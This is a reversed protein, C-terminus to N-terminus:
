MNDVSECSLLVRVEWSLRQLFHSAFFHKDNALRYKSMAALLEMPKRGNLPEMNVIDDVMQNVLYEDLGSVKKPAQLQRRDARGRHHQPDQDSRLTNFDGQSLFYHKLVRTKLYKHGSTLTTSGSQSSDPDPGLMKAWDPDPDSGFFFMFVLM